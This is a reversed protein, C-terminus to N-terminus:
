EKEVLLKQVGIFLAKLAPTLIPETFPNRSWEMKSRSIKTYFLTGTHNKEPPSQMLEKLHGWM